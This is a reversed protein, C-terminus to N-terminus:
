LAEEPQQRYLQSLFAEDFADQNADLLVQGERMAIIRPCYQKAVHVQHLSVLLTMGHAQCLSTMSDMVRKSSEPDLSAVPEDALLVKAGQLLARAVAARQQQGGSLTSARQFAQDALGVMSLADLALAQDSPNFRGVMLPLVPRKGALGMLVNTMVDLRGVLNFQQFIVAFQQRLRRIQRSLVGK